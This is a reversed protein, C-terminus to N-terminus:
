QESHIAADSSNIITRCYSSMKRLFDNTSSVSLNLMMQQAPIQCAILFITNHQSAKVLSNLVRTHRSRDIAYRLAAEPRNLEQKAIETPVKQGPSMLNQPIQEQFLFAEFIIIINIVYFYTRTKLMRLIVSKKSPPFYSLFISKMALSDNFVVFIYCKIRHGNYMNYFASCWFLFLLLFDSHSAYYICFRYPLLKPLSISVHSLSGNNVLLLKNGRLHM